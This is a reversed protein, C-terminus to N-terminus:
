LTDTGSITWYYRHTGDFYVLYTTSSTHQVITEGTKMQAATDSTVVRMKSDAIEQLWKAWVPTIGGRSDTIATRLQAPAIKM